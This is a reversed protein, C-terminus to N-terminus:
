QGLALRCHNPEASMYLSFSTPSLLCALQHGSPAPRGAYSPWDGAKAYDAVAGRPATVGTM